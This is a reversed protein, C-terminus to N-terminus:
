ERRFLGFITGFIRRLLSISILIVATYFVFQLTFVFVLAALGYIHLMTLVKMAPKADKNDARRDEVKEMSAKFDASKDKRWDEISDTFKVVKANISQTFTQNDSEVDKSANSEKANDQAHLLAPSVLVLLLLFTVLRRQM